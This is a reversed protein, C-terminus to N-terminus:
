SLGLDPFPGNLITEITGYGTGGGVPDSVDCLVDRTQHVRAVTEATNTAQASVVDSWSPGHWQGFRHAADMGGYYGGMGIHFGTERSPTVTIPRPNGNQDVVNLVGGRLRRTETEFELEPRVMMFKNRAGCPLEEACDFLNTVTGDAYVERLMSVFLGYRDGDDRALMM